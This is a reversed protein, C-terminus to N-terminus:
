RRRAAANRAITSDPLRFLTGTLASDHVTFTWVGRGRRSEFESAWRNRPRDYRFDMEGMSEFRGAVLKLANLHVADGRKPLDTFEYRVTEDHCAENGPIHTCISTGQWTGLIERKPANAAGAYAAGAIAVACAFVVARPRTM